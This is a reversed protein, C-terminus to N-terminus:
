SGLFIHSCKFFFGCPTGNFSKRLLLDWRMNIHTCLNELIYWNLVASSWINDAPCSLGMWSLVTLLSYNCYTVVAEQPQWITTLCLHTLLTSTEFLLNLLICICVQGDHQTLGLDTLLKMIRLRLYEWRETYFWISIKSPSVPTDKSGPVLM